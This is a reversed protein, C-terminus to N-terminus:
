FRRFVKWLRVLFDQFEPNRWLCNALYDGYSLNNKEAM